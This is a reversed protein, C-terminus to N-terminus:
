ILWTQGGDAWAVEIQPRPAGPALRFTLPLVTSSLVEPEESTSRGAPDLAGDALRYLELGWPDRDVVLLERVGIGAYFGRKERALDNRSLIEVLFDPGGCWHTGCDKAPNRHLFVAVDPVRYNQRWGDERDSVNTGPFVRDGLRLDLVRCLAQALQFTLWQHDNNALPSMVYVGDWVEDHLAPETGEREALLRDEVYPDNVLVPM